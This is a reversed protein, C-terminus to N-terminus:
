NRAKESDFKTEIVKVGVSNKYVKSFLGTIESDQKAACCCVAVNFEVFFYKM